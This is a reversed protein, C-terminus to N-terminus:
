RCVVKWSSHAQWATRAQGVVVGFIHLGDFRVTALNTRKGVVMWLQLYRGHLSFIVRWDDKMRAVVTWCRQPAEKLAEVLM